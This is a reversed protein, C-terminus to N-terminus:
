VPGDVNTATWHGGWPVLTFSVPIRASPPVDTQRLVGQLRSSCDDISFVVTEVVANPDSVAIDGMDGSTSWNFILGVSM